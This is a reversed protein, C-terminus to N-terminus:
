ESLQIRQCSLDYHTEARLCQTFKLAKFQQLTKEQDQTRLAETIAIFKPFLKAVSSKPIPGLELEPRGWQNLGRTVLRVEQPNILEAVPRLWPYNPTKCLQHFGALDFVEFSALSAVLLNQQQNSFLQHQSLSETISCSLSLQLGNKLAQGQYSVITIGKFDSLQAQLRSLAHNLVQLNIPLDDQIPLSLVQFREALKSSVM